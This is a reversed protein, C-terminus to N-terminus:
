MLTGSYVLFEIKMESIYFRIQDIKIKMTIALVIFNYNFETIVLNLLFDILAHLSFILLLLFQSLNKTFLM